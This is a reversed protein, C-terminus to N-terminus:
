LYEVICSEPITEFLTELSGAIYYEDRSQLVTCGLLKHELTVINPWLAPLNDTTRPVLYPVKHGQYPSNSATDICGGWSKDPAPIEQTCM